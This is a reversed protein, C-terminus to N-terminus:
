LTPIPVPASVTPQLRSRFRSWERYSKSTTGLHSEIAGAKWIWIRHALLKARMRELHPEVATTQALERFCQEASVAGNKQFLGTQQNIQGGIRQAVAPMHQKCFELDADNKEIYKGNVANNFLYDLDAIAIADIGMEDLVRLCKHINSAGGPAVLGLRHDALGANHLAEYLDPLLEQETKGECIIVRDSFLIECASDLSFLEDLQAPADEELVRLATEDLNPLAITCGDSTKRLITTNPLAERGIMLPSHTTFIVQYGRESLQRLSSRVRAIAQPHMYLEPEDVLLIKRKGDEAHAREALRQILAMQIARQAGHGMSGIDQGVVDGGPRGSEFVRVTGSKFLTAIEPAPIDVKIRVGPFFGTVANSAEEDFAKLLGARDEGEAALLKNLADISAQIQDGHAETLESMLQQILKGITSNKDVKSVDRGADEMASIVIPEPFLADIAQDIGTPNNGWGDDGDPASPNHIELKVQSISGGGKPQIRRIRICRDVVFPEIRPRHREGLADLVRQDIGVICAAVSCPCNPDHFDSEQLVSRKLLWQIASLINSKGANNYGVLPSFTGLALNKIEACSRFNQIDISSIRHM